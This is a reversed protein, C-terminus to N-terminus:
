LRTSRPGGGRPHAVEVPGHGEGGVALGKGHGPAVPRDQEPVQVRAPRTGDEPSMVAHDPGQGERGVAPPEGRPAIVPGDPEEINRRHPASSVDASAYGDVRCRRGAFSRGWEPGSGM